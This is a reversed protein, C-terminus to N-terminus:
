ISKINFTIHSKAIVAKRMTKTMVCLLDDEVSKKNNDFVCIFFLKMEIRVQVDAPIYKIAEAVVSAVSEPAALLDINDIVLVSPATSLCMDIASSLLTSSQLSFTVFCSHCKIHSFSDGFKYKLSSLRCLVHNICLRRSLDIELHFMWVHTDRTHEPDASRQM